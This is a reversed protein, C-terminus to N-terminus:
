WKDVILWNDHSNDVQCMVGHNVRLKGNETLRETFLRCKSNKWRFYGVKTNSQGVENELITDGVKVKSLPIVGNACVTITETSIDGDREISASKIVCDNAWVNFALLFLIPIFKKM